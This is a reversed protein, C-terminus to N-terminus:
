PWLLFCFVVGEQKLVESEKGLEKISKMKQGSENTGRRRSEEVHRTEEAEGLLTWGTSCRLLM